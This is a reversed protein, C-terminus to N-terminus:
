RPGDEEFLLRDADNEAARILIDGRPTEQALDVLGERALELIALFWVAVHERGESGEM